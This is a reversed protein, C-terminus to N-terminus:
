SSPDGSTARDRRQREISRLWSELQAITKAHPSPESTSRSGEHSPEPECIEEAQKHTNVALANEM